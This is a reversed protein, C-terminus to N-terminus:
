LKKKKLKNILKSPLELIILNYFSNITSEISVDNFSNINRIRNMRYYDSPHTWSSILPYQGFGDMNVIKDNIWFSFDDCFLEKQYNKSRFSWSIIFYNNKILFLIMLITTFIQIFTNDINSIDYISYLCLLSYIHFPYIWLNKAGKFSIKEEEIFHHGLEHGITFRGVDNNLLFKPDLIIFSDSNNLKYFRGKKEACFIVDPFRHNKFNNKYKIKYELINLAIDNLSIEKNDLIFKKNYVNTLLSGDHKYFLFKHLFSDISLNSDKLREKLADEDSIFHITGKNKLFTSLDFLDNNM